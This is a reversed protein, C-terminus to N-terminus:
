NKATWVDRFIFVLDSIRTQTVFYKYKVLLRFLLNDGNFLDRLSYHFIIARAFLSCAPAKDEQNLSESHGHLRTEQRSRSVDTTFYKSSVSFYSRRNNKDLCSIQRAYGVADLFQHALINWLVATSIFTICIHTYFGSSFRKVRRRGERPEWLDSFSASDEVECLATKLNSHRNALKRLLSYNLHLTKEDTYRAADSFTSTVSQM